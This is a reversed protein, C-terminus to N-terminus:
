ISVAVTGARALYQRLADQVPSDGLWERPREIVLMAGERSVQASWPGIGSRDRIDLARVGALAKQLVPEPTQRLVLSLDDLERLATMVPGRSAWSLTVAGGSRTAVWAELDPRFEALARSARKEVPRALWPFVKDLGTAAIASASDRLHAIAQSGDMVEINGLRDFERLKGLWRGIAQGTQLPRLLCAFLNGIAAFEIFPAPAPVDVPNVVPAGQRPVWADQGTGLGPISPMAPSPAPGSPGTPPVPSTPAPVPFQFQPAIGVSFSM